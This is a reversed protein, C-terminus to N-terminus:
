YIGGYAPVLSGKAHIGRGYELLALVSAPRVQELRVGSRLGM